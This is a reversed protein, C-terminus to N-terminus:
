SIRIKIEKRRRLLKEDMAQIETIMRNFLPINNRLSLTYQIARKAPRM